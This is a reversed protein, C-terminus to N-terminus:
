NSFRLKYANQPYTANKVLTDNRDGFPHIKEFNYHFDIIDELNIRTKKNYDKLLVDIKEEVEKPPTTNIVNVLDIMNPVIKFGGANYRPNEEDSTSRKLIKNMELIMEKSLENDVNDLM